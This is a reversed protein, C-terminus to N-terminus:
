SSTVNSPNLGDFTVIIHREDWKETAYRGADVIPLDGNQDSGAHAIIPGAVLDPAILELGLGEGAGEVAVHEDRARLRLDEDKLGEPGRGARAADVM